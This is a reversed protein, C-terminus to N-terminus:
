FGLAGLCVGLEDVEVIVVSGVSRESPCGGGAEDLVVEGFLVGLERQGDGVSRSEEGDAVVGGGDGGVWVRKGGWWLGRSGAGVRGAEVVV